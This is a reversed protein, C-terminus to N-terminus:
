PSASGPSNGAANGPAPTNSVTVKSNDQLKDFSSTAVADGPNLGTVQTMGHDTVGTQINRMHAVNDQIMFVFAVKGNHQIGSSPILTAGHITNVLLRINVFENPFLEANKNAFSARAKVTGTTTDIQNDLTMLTGTTIKNVGARDYADASLKTNQHLQQQVKGLDDEAITFIVTIPQVQAVVVLTTTGTSQVVNGPDVLRLGVRGDIPSTIHCFGVQVKDYAVTGQDLKVTGEDQLVIKEQDDLTQKPIARRNWADQYRELDMKAQGLVNVDRDLTGQAQLLTAEYPRPDIDILPDGKRVVQGERYHVAIVIGNVQSTISSTFVPTVTGISDLYYGIDGQKATATTLAVPGGGGRPARATTTTDQRRLVLMFGVAFIVLIAVWVIIRVGKHRTPTASHRQNEPGNPMRANQDTPL